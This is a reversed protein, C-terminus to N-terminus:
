NQRSNPNYVYLDGECVYGKSALNDKAQERLSRVGGTSRNEMGDILASSIAKKAAAADLMEQWLDAIPRADQANKLEEKRARVLAAKTKFGNTFVNPLEKGAKADSLAKEALAVREAKRLDGLEEPTMLEPSIVTVWKESM